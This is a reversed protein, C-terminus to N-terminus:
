NRYKGVHLNLGVDLEYFSARSNELDYFAGLTPNVPTEGDPQLNAANM